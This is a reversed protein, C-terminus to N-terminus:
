RRLWLELSNDDEEQKEQQAKIWENRLRYYTRDSYGGIEKFEKRTPIRNYEKLFCDWVTKATIGYIM